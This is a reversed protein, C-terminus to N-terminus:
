RTGQTPDPQKTLKREAQRRKAAQISRLAAATSHRPQYELLEEFEEEPLNAVRIFENVEAQSLGAALAARQMEQRERAARLIEASLPQCQGTRRKRYAAQRCANSCYAIDNRPSERRLDSPRLPGGCVICAEVMGTTVALAGNCATVAERFTRRRERERRGPSNKRKCKCVSECAASTAQKMAEQPSVGRFVLDGFTNKEVTEELVYVFETNTHMLELGLMERYLNRHAVSWPEPVGLLERLIRKREPGALVIATSVIFNAEGMGIAIRLNM